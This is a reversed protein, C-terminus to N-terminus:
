TASALQQTSETRTTREALLNGGVLFDLLEAYAVAGRYGTGLISLPVGAKAADRFRTDVPIVSGWVRYAYDQRMTSLAQLSARTRKDFMTPVIMWHPKINKSKAIMALTREMRELGKLALHETQVPVLLQDCAVLANIMLVGLVPPCDLIIYDFKSGIRKLANSIILGMGPRAAM